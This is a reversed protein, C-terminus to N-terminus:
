ARATIHEVLIRHSKPIPKPLGTSGSSHLYVAIDTPKIAPQCSDGSITLNDLGDNIPTDSFQPYLQYLSPIETIAIEYNPDTNKFEVEVSEM